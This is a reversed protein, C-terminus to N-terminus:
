ELSGPFSASVIGTPAINAVMFFAFLAVLKVAADRMQGICGSVSEPKL